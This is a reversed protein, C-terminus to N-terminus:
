TEKGWGGGGPTDIRIIDGPHINIETKGPLPRREGNRYLTNQGGQGMGGEHLGYPAFRRRESTITARAPTTFRISRM